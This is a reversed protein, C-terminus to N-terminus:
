AMDVGVVRGIDRNIKLVIPRRGGRSAGTGREVVLGRALLDDIIVSITSRSLALTEALEARSIGATSQRILEVVSAKNNARVIGDPFAANSTAFLPQIPRHLVM